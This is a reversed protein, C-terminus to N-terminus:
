LSFVRYKASPQELIYKMSPSDYCLFVSATVDTFYSFAKQHSTKPHMM